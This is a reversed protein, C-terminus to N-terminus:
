ILTLIQYLYIINNNCNIRHTHKYVSCVWRTDTVGKEPTGCIFKVNKIM